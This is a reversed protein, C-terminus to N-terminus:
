YDRYIEPIQDDHGELLHESSDRSFASGDKALAEVSHKSQYMVKFVFFLIVISAISEPLLIGIGFLIGFGLVITPHFEAIYVVVTRGIFAALMIGVLVGMIVVLKAGKVRGASRLTIWTFVLYGFLVAVVGVIFMSLILSSYDHPWNGFFQNQPTRANCFLVSLVITSVTLGLGISGMVFKSVHEFKDDEYTEAYIANMWMYTLFLVLLAFVLCAATNIVYFTIDSFIISTGGNGFGVYAIIWFVLRLVHLLTIGILLTTYLLNSSITKWIFGGFLFLTCCVVLFVGSITMGTWAAEPSVWWNTLSIQRNVTQSMSNVANQCELTVCKVNQLVTRWQVFSSGFARRTRSIENTTQIPCSAGLCTTYNANIAHLVNDNNDDNTITKGSRNISSVTARFHIGSSLANFMYQTLMYADTADAKQKDCGNSDNTCLALKDLAANLRRVQSTVANAEFSNGFQSMAQQCTSQSNCNSLDNTASNLDVDAIAMCTPNGCYAVTFQILSTVSNSLRSITDSCVSTKCLLQQQVLLSQLDQIALLRNVRDANLQRMVGTHCQDIPPVVSPCKDYATISNKVKDGLDQIVVIKENTASILLQWCETLTSCTSLTDVSSTRVNIASTTTKFSTTTPSTTQVNTMPLIGNLGITPTITKTNTMKLTAKVNTTPTTTQANTVKLTSKLSTRTPTTIQANTVKLTSKLSTTTPATTKLSTTTLTTQVITTPTTSTKQIITTPTTAPSNLIDNNQIDNGGTTLINRNAGSGSSGDLGSNSFRLGTGVKGLSSFVIFLIFIRM